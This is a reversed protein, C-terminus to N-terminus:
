KRVFFLSGIFMVINSFMFALIYEFINENFISLLVVELILFLFLGAPIRLKNTSLGYILRLNTLALFSFSIGSLVLFKSIDLYQSGYLILTILRPFVAYFIVAILCFVFIMLISKRFIKKSDEGNDCKECTLPFMAKSISMTAFFIMKGLMSLVAYKGAIEAPFFRKALIIDLSFFMLIVITVIFYPISQFYIEKFKVDEKKQKFLDFNFYISIIIGFFVGALVGILAGFVKMGILVLLAGLSIKVFSELILSIGFNSFKKRGQLAGRTIPSSFASFIFINSVIILWFNIELFNHLLFSIPILILFIILSFVFGRKISKLIMFKIKGYEKDTNFKTVYKSIINQISEVPISYIYMLSMLVAFTGYDAPGLMRGMLFHFVFNLFNAINMMVFLITAGKGLESGFFKKLM